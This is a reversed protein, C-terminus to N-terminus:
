FYTSICNILWGVAVPSHVYAPGEIAAQAATATATVAGCSGILADEPYVALSDSCDLNFNWYVLMRKTPRAKALTAVAHILCKRM